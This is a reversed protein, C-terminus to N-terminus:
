HINIKGVDIGTGPFVSHHMRCVMFVTSVFVLM